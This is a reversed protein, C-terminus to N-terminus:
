NAESEDCNDSCPCDECDGDCDVENLPCNECNGGCVFEEAEQLVRIILKDNEAEIGYVTDEAVNGDKDKKAGIALLAEKPIGLAVYEGSAFPELWKLAEEVGGSPDMMTQDQM